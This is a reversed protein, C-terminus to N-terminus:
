PAFAGLDMKQGLPLVMISFSESTLGSTTNRIALKYPAGDREAQEKRVYPFEWNKMHPPALFLTALNYGM